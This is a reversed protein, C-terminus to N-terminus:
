GLRGRSQRRVSQAAERREVRRADGGTLQEHGLGVAREDGGVGGGRAGRDGVREPRRGLDDLQELQPARQQPGRSPRSGSGGGGGDCPPPPRRPRGRRSPRSRGRSRRCRRPSSRGPWGRSPRSRAAAARRRRASREDRARHHEDHEREAAPDLRVRACSRLASTPRREQQRAGVGDHRDGLLLDRGVEGRQQDGRDRQPHDSRRRAAPSGTEGAPMPATSTPKAPTASSSCGPSCDSPADSSASPAQTNAATIHALPENAEGRSFSGPSGSTAVPQCISSPPARSRPRRAPPRRPAAVDVELRERRARDHREGVQDHEAGPEGEGGVGPQELVRRDRADRGVRVHVRHDRDHEAVQDEVLDIVGTVSTPAAIMTTDTASTVRISLARRGYGSRRGRRHRPPPGARARGGAGRARARARRRARARAPRWTPISPGATRTHNRVFFREAPVLYGADGM